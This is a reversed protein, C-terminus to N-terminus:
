YRAYNYANLPFNAVDDATGYIQDIGASILIFTDPNHPQYATTIQVNRTFKQYATLNLNLSPDHYPIQNAIQHPAGTNLSLGGIFALNEDRAYISLPTSRNATNAKYYLVPM